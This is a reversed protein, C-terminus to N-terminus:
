VRRGGHMSDVRRIMIENAADRSLGAERLAEFEQRLQDAEGLARSMCEDCLPGIAVHEAHYEVTRVSSDPAGCDCCNSM